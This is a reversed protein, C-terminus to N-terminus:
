DILDLETIDYPPAPLALQVRSAFLSSDIEVDIVVDDSGPVMIGKPLEVTAMAPPNLARQGESALNRLVRSFFNGVKPGHDQQSQLPLLKAAQTFANNLGWLSRDPHMAAQAQDRFYLRDVEKALRLPMAGLRVIADYILAKAQSEALEVAQMRRIRDMWHQGAALFREVLEPAFASATLGARHLRRIRVSDESGSFAMNDCVFVRAAAMGLVAMSKDNAARLAMALSHESTELSPIMLDFVGFFKTDMTGGVALDKRAVKIGASDLADLVSTVLDYHPVPWHTRTRAPTEISRLQDLSVRRAGSHLCLASM